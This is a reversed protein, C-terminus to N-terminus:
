RLLVRQEASFRQHFLPLKKCCGMPSMAGVFSIAESLPQLCNLSNAHVILSQVILTSCMMTDSNTRRSFLLGYDSCRKCDLKDIVRELFSTTGHLSFTDQIERLVCAAAVMHKFMYFM